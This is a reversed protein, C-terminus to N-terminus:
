AARVREWARGWDELSTIGDGPELPPMDFDAPSAFVEDLRDHPFVARTEPDLLDVARGNVTGCPLNRCLIPQAEPGIMWEIWAYATEENPAERALCWCDLWAPDGEQPHAFRVDAGKRRARRSAAEWGATSIWAEGSALLEPIDDWSGLVPEARRKLEVVFDIVAELEQSTLRTPNPYGLVRGWLIIQNRPQDLMVVRGRHEPKLVDLWSTPPEAVFEANYLMPQTGWIYPASWVGGASRWALRAFTDVYDATSPIRVYDLPALLEAGVLARVYRNDPAALDIEGLGVRLEALVQEDDDVYIPEVRVGYRERFPRSAEPDDYGRWVVMRLTGGIGERGTSLAM